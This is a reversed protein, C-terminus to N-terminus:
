TTYTVLADPDAITLRRGDRRVLGRATLDRLVRSFTEPTMGLRSALVQNPSALRINRALDPPAADAGPGPNRGRPEHQPQAPMALLFAVVRQTASSLAYQEIDGVLTHLRQALAALMTRAFEPDQTLLADVVAAPVHILESTVLATADVPFPKRLFMVAEGFSQGAQIIEVVKVVGDTNSVSLQVTGSMVGYCGTCPMGRRFLLDGRPVTHRTCGVALRALQEHTLRGFLPLAALASATTGPRTV